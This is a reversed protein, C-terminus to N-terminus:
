LLVLESEQEKWLGYQKLLEEQFARDTVSKKLDELRGEELLRLNLENVETRGEQRGEQRAEKRLYNRTSKEDYEELLMDMVEVKSQILVDTLIEHELCYEVAKDVAKRLEMGKTQNNRIQGLFESYEWLRRCKEMLVQNHGQNINLIVARCELCMELQGEAEEDPQLFIDSLPQVQRDPEDRTGNYFVIYQPYPLRVKGAGYLDLKHEKVYVQYLKAFYFLGRLPTNPNWTSQHEYLNMVSDIVFSLDNKMGLYITGALTAIELDNENQYNTGRLANYLELLHRKDRFLFRFLRDKHQRNVTKAQFNSRRKRHKKKTKL